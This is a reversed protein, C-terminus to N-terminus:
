HWAVSGAGQVCVSCVRRLFLMTPAGGDPSAARPRCQVIVARRRNKATFLCSFMDFVSFWGLPVPRRGVPAVTECAKGTPSM